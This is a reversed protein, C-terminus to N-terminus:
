QDAQFPPSYNIFQLNRKIYAKSALKFGTPRIQILPHEFYYYEGANRYHYAIKDRTLSFFSESSLQCAAYFGDSFLSSGGECTNQLCHLFQFGPPDSMYLLDMHLGLYQATYAVNKAQPVSKVDWTRGYFTDRLNGIRLAMDEVANEYHPVERVLLLGHSM